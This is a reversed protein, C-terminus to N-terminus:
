VGLYDRIATWLEAVTWKKCFDPLLDICDPITDIHSQNEADLDDYWVTFDDLQEQEPYDRKKEM